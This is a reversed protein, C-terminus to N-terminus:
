SPASLPRFVSVVKGQIRAHSGDIPAYAPNSPLLRVTGGRHSLRKVTAGDEILAVIIEGESAVAQSRVVVYDGDFIGDGSMSDGSVRLLFTEGGGVLESPLPVMREVQEEALIPTGAAIQGVLPVYTPWPRDQTGPRQLNIELARPKAPHRRIYGKCELAKVLAHARSTSITLEFAIERISSSYGHDSQFQGIFQLVQQQRRTLGRPPSRHSSATSTEAEDPEVLVSIKRPGSPDRRTYGKHQLAALNRHVSASSSLGIAAGLERISPARGHAAISERIAALMQKQRPTLSEM